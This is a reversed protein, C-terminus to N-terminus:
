RMAFREAQQVIDVGVLDSWAVILRQFVDGPRGSCISQGNLRLVPLLCPTTGALLVEEAAAVDAPTLDREVFPIGLSQALEAVVAVSIGPLLKEHPPSVITPGREVVLLSATTTETVFGDDDLLIARSHPDVQRAQRDALYYHMRSRCKLSRPWCDAAVQRVDTVVLADGQRYLHAFRHFPLPYTHLCVTPGMADPPAFTPYAGPTVFIGLGQDDAPDLLAHNRTVLEQATKEFDAASLGPDVGVVDLSRWLRKVHRDLRFLRGGFSRIQEAVTTGLVFGADYIPVSLASTPVFRGNLYAITETM